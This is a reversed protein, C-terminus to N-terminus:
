QELNKKMRKYEEEDIEGNVYREKLKDLADSKNNMNGFEKNQSFYYVAVGILIIWIFMM